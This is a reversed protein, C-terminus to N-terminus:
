TSGNVQLQDWDSNRCFNIRPAPLKNPLSELLFHAHSLPFSSFRLFNDRDGSIESHSCLGAWRSQWIWELHALPQCTVPPMRGGCHNWEDLHFATPCSEVFIQLFGPLNQQNNNNNTARSCTCCLFLFLRRLLHTPNGTTQKEKKALLQCHGMKLLISCLPQWSTNLLYIIM